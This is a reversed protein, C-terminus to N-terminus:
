KTSHHKIRYNNLWHYLVVRYLYSFCHADQGRCNKGRLLWDRLVLIPKQSFDTIKGGL